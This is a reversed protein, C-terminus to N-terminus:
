FEIIDNAILSASSPEFTDDQSMDPDSFRM